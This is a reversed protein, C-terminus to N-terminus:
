AAFKKKKKKFLSSFLGVFFALADEEGKPRGQPGGNGGGKGWVARGGGEATTMRVLYLSGRGRGGARRQWEVFM